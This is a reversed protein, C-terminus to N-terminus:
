KQQILSLADADTWLKYTWTPHHRICSRQAELWREPVLATRWTQHLLSPVVFAPSRIQETKLTVNSSAHIPAVLSANESAWKISGSAVSWFLFNYVIQSLCHLYPFCLLGLTLVIGTGLPLWMSRAFGWRSMAKRLGIHKGSSSISCCRMAVQCQIRQQVVSLLLTM